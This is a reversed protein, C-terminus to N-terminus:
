LKGPADIDQQARRAEEAKRILALGVADAQEPTMCIEFGEAYVEVVYGEGGFVDATVNFRLPLETARDSKAVSL